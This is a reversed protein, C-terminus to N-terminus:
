LCKSNCILNKEGGHKWLNDFKLAILKKKGKIKMFGQIKSSTGEWMSGDGIWGM